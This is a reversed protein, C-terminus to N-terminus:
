KKTLFGARDRTLKETDAEGLVFVETRGPEDVRAYVRKGGSGGEERGLHLAKVVGGRQTLVIVRQPPALGYLRLDADKDVVYREAKLGALADLFESVKAPDIPAKADAADVWLQGLKRLAFNAGSGSVAVTEVQSADVGSWVARKRYEGLVRNTLAPDLLAVLDGAALKAFARDGDKRGVLLSLVEKDGTFLKWTAEPKELGFPKLDAPRDAELEDARLKALANVLEDLDAQEADAQVPEVLKWTGAVKAFVAKRDGRELVARDADVFKALTRDRYKLPDALLRKALPGSLVGVTVEKAGEVVAFREGDPKASDVPKGIRLVKKEPKETGVTLTVVAAPEDLGFSALDTAGFAAVRAARLKSFQEALEDMLPQDAKHKEPLVIDWGVTAGPVLDFEGGADYRTFGTLAAPDFTLLTRDVFDLKGRALADGGPPALVAVAPGDDVRAYRGGGPAPKGVKVAHAEGGVTGTVTYEPKDLGFEAWKVNAGYAAIRRVPPRAFANVIAEATPRDVTFAAGEAKWGAKEDKTLTVNADPTPGVVALKTVQAPDKFLLTKDLLDLAPKDADKVLQEPLVFVAPNPGGELHAFRTAAGDATPKGVVLTKTTAQEAKADGPKPEKYTLTLRLVPKDFGHKAPDPTLSEYKEAKVNSVAALLPQASLYPVPADFPGSLKWNTGDQALKYAEGDGRKVEVATVKEAPVSWLQLPLLGVAGAKVADVTAKPLTFVSGGGNLRAYYEQKFEPASGVDLKQPKAGPGTFTLDISLKPQALGYKKDLDEPKPADDVYETVELRSLDGTLQAAKADDADIAVPKTLKWENADKQLAFSDGGPQAVAVATLKAEATDFLRRGRYALAPRDILKRVDDAVVNVRPWGAVQVNLKKKDADHKGLLFTFAHDATAVTVATGGQEIGLDALAKADPNDIVAKEAPPPPPAGPFAPVTATNKAELRSLQDLLETVKSPEALVDGVYWRDQRDEEREADKNGKKKTIKVPPKGKVAVTLETVDSTDFRALQADRLEEPKPFLDALKDARVEFVLPNNDLKAYRYEETTVRPPPPPAFPQAPPQPETKTVTRSVNGIRLTVASGDAATVTLSKEPRDLGTEAPSKDTVFSVAWVDPIGTLVARLRAPDVRDRLPQFGKKAGEVEALEWATALKAAPLTADAFPKEPDAKPEPTKAVRKLVFGGDRDEAKISVYKDGLLTVPGSAPPTPNLPNPPPEGGTVKVREAAPFLQKRRFEEAPRAVKALVGSGLRVVEPLDDVRLYTPQEFLSEDPQPAPRGFTLTLTRGGTDVRAVVPKQSPDLGYRKLDAAEGDLRIPLYRPAFSTLADALTDAEAQRVPWNGPQTWTGDAARTLILPDHGPVTLEIKKLKGPALQEALAARAASRTDPERPGVAIGAKSAIEDGKWMWAVGGAVLLALLFTTFWRM